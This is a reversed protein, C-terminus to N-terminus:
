RKDKGGLDFHWEGASKGIDKQLEEWRTCWLLQEGGM